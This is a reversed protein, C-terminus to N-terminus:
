KTLLEALDLRLSRSPPPACHGLRGFVGFPTTKEAGALREFEDSLALADDFLSAKQSFRRNARAYWRFIVPTMEPQFHLGLKTLTLWQRQWAAGLALWDELSTPARKPRILVHAACLRGPLYDLQLRPAFTGMLFRNFFHVRDWSQLVWQMLRATMPDVGVAEEPIRDKSFRARWEIIDRHVPHAEPCTLRIRASRWLMGAVRRRDSPSEFWQVQMDPGVAGALEARQADTLPTTQMPRRQVTRREISDLLPDPGMGAAESFRVEYVPARHDGSSRAVWDSRLGHGTAAIRLTELLAGHAIHCAHGDFDYLVHDRTDHGHVLVCDDAVVEFRWPQTNDGSPAWRAKDLIKHLTDRNM